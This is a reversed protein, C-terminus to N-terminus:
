GPSRVRLNLGAILSAAVAVAPIYLGFDTIEQLGIATLAGLTGLGIGSVLPDAQCRLNRIAIRGILIFGIILAGLGAAGTEILIQLYDNHAFRAPVDPEMTEYAPYTWEFTGLGQGFIRHHGLMKWADRWLAVRDQNSERELNLNEYRALIPDIGIYLALIIIAALILIGFKAGHSGTGATKAAVIMVGLSCLMAVIGMRSMSFVVGIGMLAILAVLWGLKASGPSYILRKLSLKRGGLLRQLRYFVFGVGLCIVINLLLAYHNRNILTGTALGVYAKKKFAWIRDYGGLYQIIGYVAEFMGAAMIATILLKIAFRSRFGTQIILVIGSYSAALALYLLTTHREVTHPIWMDSSQFGARLICAQVSAIALFVALFLYVQICESGIRLSPLEALLHAALLTLAVACIVGMAWIENSGFALVSFCFLGFIGIEIIKSM